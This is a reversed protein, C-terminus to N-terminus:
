PYVQGESLPAQSMDPPMLTRSLVSDFTARSESVQAIRQIKLPEGAAFRVGRLSFAQDVHASRLAGQAINAQCRRGAPFACSPYRLLTPIWGASIEFAPLSCIGHSPRSRAAKSEVALSRTWDVPQLLKSRVTLGDGGVGGLGTSDRAILATGYRGDSAKFNCAVNNISGM